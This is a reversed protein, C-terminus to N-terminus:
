RRRETEAAADSEGALRAIDAILQQVEGPSTGAYHGRIRGRRDVLVFKNSHIVKEAGEDIQTTTARELGLKLAQQSFRQVTRFDGRVLHWRSPDVDFQEAYARLRAPTDVTPDTSISLLRLTDPGLAPDSKTSEQVTRMATTMVPCLGGCTTFIFDVVWVKGRLLEDSIKRGDYNDFEFEFEGVDGYVPLADKSPDAANKAYIQWVAALAIAGIGCIFM